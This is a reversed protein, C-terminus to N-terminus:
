LTIRRGEDASWYGAYQVKITERALSLDARPERGLAACEM